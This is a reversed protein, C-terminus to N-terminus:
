DTHHVAQSKKIKSTETEVTLKLIKKHKSETVIKQIKIMINLLRLLLSFNDKNNKYM